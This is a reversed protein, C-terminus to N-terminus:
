LRESATPRDSEGVERHRYRYHCCHRHTSEVRESARTAPRQCCIQRGTEGGKNVCAAPSRGPAHQTHIPM